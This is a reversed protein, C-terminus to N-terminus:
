GDKRGAMALEAIAIQRSIGHSIELCRAAKNRLDEEAITQTHGSAFIALQSDPDTTM